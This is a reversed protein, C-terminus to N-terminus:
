LRDCFIFPRCCSPITCSHTFTSALFIFARVVDLSELLRYFHVRRCGTQTQRGGSVGSYRGSEAATDSVDRRSEATRVATQIPCEDTDVNREVLGDNVTRDNITKQLKVISKSM